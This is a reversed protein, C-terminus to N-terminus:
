VFNLIYFPSHVEKSRVTIEPGSGPYLELYTNWTLATVRRYDGSTNAAALRLDEQPVFQLTDENLQLLLDNRCPGPHPCVDKGVHVYSLWLNIWTSNM